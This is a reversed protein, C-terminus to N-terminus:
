WRCCTPTARRAPAWVAPSSAADYLTGPHSALLTANIAGASVGTIIDFRLDPIRRAVVRLFGVQYAARAGGGTLVM